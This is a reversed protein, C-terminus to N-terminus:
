PRLRLRYRVSDIDGLPSHGTKAVGEPEWGWARYFRAARHDGPLTWLIAEQWPGSRFHELAATMLVRGVGTGIVEPEVYMGYLEAAGSADPDRGPGVHTLGVVRGGREAVWTREPPASPLHEEWYRARPEAEMGDILAQPVLGPFFARWARVNLDAMAYADGPRADRLVVPEPEV